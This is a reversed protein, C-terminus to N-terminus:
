DQFALSRPFSFVLQFYSFYVEGFTKAQFVESVAGAVFDGKTRGLGDFNVNSVRVPVKDLDFSIDEM